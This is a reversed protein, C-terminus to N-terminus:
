EIRQESRPTSSATKIEKFRSFGRSKQNFLYYTERYKFINVFYIPCCDELVTEFNLLRYTGMKLELVFDGISIPSNFTM